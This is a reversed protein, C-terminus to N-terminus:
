LWGLTELDRIPETFSCSGIRILFRERVQRVQDVSWIWSRWRISDATVQFAQRNQEELLQAAEVADGGFWVHASACLLNMFGHMLGSPSDPKYTLPHQSRLPHHLGATAKFAIRREALQKLTAAISSATPFAEAAVGGMRLKARIGAAIMADLMGSEIPGLPVEVYITIQDPLGKKWHLIEDRSGSKLEIMDVLLGQDLHELITQLDSGTAVVSLPLDRIADALLVPLTRADVVLNGLAWAHGSKRHERYARLAEPLDLEAPPFMGAYDFLNAMACEIASTQTKM